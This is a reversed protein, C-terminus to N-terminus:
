FDKSLGQIKSMSAQIFGTGILIRGVMGNAELNALAQNDIAEISVWVELAFHVIKNLFCHRTIISSIPRTAVLGTQRTESLTLNM